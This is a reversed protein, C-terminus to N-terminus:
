YPNSLRFSYIVAIIALRAHTEYVQVTFKTRIRQVQLDQRMSKYQDCLYAYSAGEEAKKMLLEFTQEM